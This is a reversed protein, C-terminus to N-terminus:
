RLYVAIASGLMIYTVRRLATYSELFIVVTSKDANLFGCHFGLDEGYSFTLSARGTSLAGYWGPM